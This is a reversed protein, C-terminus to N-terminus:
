SKLKTKFALLAELSLEEDEEPQGAEVSPEPLATSLKEPEPPTTPHTKKKLIVLKKKPAEQGAMAHTSVHTQIPQAIVQVSTAHHYALANDAYKVIFPLHPILPYKSLGLQTTVEKAFAIWDSCITEMVRDSIPGWKKSLRGLQGKDKMTFSPICSMENHKPAVRKFVAELSAACNDKGPVKTGNQEKLKALLETTMSPGKAMDEEGLELTDTTPTDGQSPAATALSIETTTEATTKPIPQATADGHTTFCNGLPDHFQSWKLPCQRMRTALAEYDLRYWLTKDYKHKNYNGVVVVGQERLTKLNNKITREDFVGLQDAWEKTTNYVWFHGGILHARDMCWYHIQQVLLGACVGFTKCLAPSFAISGHILAKSEKVKTM